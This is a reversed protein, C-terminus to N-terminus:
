LGAVFGLIFRPQTTRGDEILNLWEQAVSVEFSSFKLDLGTRFLGPRFGSMLKLNGVYYSLTGVWQDGLTNTQSFFSILEAGIQLNGHWLEPIYSASFLGRPQRDETVFIYNSTVDQGLLFYGLDRAVASVVFRNHMEFSMGLDAFLGNMRQTNLLSSPGASAFNLLTAEALVEKRTMVTGTAGLNFSFNEGAWSHSLGMFLDIEDRYTLSGLPLNPNHVQFQGQVRLPRVGFIIGKSAYYIQASIILDSYNASQFLTNVDNVNIQNQRLTDALKIVSSTATLFGAAEFRDESINASLAPNCNYQATWVPASACQGLTVFDSLDNWTGALSDLLHAAAQAHASFLVFYIIVVWARNKM